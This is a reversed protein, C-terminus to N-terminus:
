KTEVTENESPKQDDSNYGAVQGSKDVSVPNTM